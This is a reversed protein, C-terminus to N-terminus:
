IVGRVLRRFVATSGRSGDTVIWSKLTLESELCLHKIKVIATSLGSSVTTVLRRSNEDQLELSIHEIAVRCDHSSLRTVQRNSAPTDKHGLGVFPQIDDNSSKALERSRSPVM